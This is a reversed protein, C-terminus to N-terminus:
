AALSRLKGAMTEVVYIPLCNAIKASNKSLQNDTSPYYNVTRMHKSHVLLGHVLLGLHPQGTNVPLMSSLGAHRPHTIGRYDM